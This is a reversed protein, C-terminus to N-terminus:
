LADDVLDIAHLVDDLVHPEVGAIGAADAAFRGVDVLHDGAAEGQEGGLEIVEADAEFGSQGGVHGPDVGM